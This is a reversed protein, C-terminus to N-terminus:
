GQALHAALLTRLPAKAAEPVPLAELATLKAQYQATDVLRPRHRAFAALSRYNRLTEADAPAMAYDLFRQYVIDAAQASPHQM